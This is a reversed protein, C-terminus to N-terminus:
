AFFLISTCVFYLWYLFVLLCFSSFYFTFSSFCNMLNCAITVSRILNLIGSVFFSEIAPSFRNSARIFNITLRLIALNVDNPFNVSGSICLSMLDVSDSLVVLRLKPMWENRQILLPTCSFLFHHAYEFANFCLTCIPNEGWGTRTDYPDCVQMQCDRKKLKCIKNYEWRLTRRCILRGVM